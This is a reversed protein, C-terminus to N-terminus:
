FSVSLTVGASTVDEADDGLADLATAASFYPIISANETIRYPFNIMITAHDLGDEGTGRYDSSAAVWATLNMSLDSNISKSASAGGEFYYGEAGENYVAMAYPSITFGSKTEFTRSVKVNVDLSNGAFDGPFTYYTFGFTVDYDGLGVTYGGFPTLEEYDSDPGTGYWVGLNLGEALNFAMSTWQINKGAGCDTGRFLHTSEYGTSISGSLEFDNSGSQANVSATAMICSVASVCTVFKKVNM